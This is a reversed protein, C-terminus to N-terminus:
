YIVAQVYSLTNRPGEVRVTIRYYPSGSSACLNEGNPLYCTPDQPERIRNSDGGASTARATFCKENPPGIDECMRHVVYRVTNGTEPAMATTQADSWTFTVPDFVQGAPVGGNWTPYYFPAAQPFRNELSTNPQTMLWRRAVEVGRDSAQVAAQRFALNGSILTAVDVTSVLAIAALVTAVMVILAVILVVGRQRAHPHFSGISRANM